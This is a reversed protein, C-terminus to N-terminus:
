QDRQQMVHRYDPECSFRVKRAEFQGNYVYHKWAAEDSGKLVALDANMSTYHGSDFCKSGRALALLVKAAKYKSPQTIYDNSIVAKADQGNNAQWSSYKEAKEITPYEQNQQFSKMKVFM